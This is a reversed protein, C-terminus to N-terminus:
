HRRIRHYQKLRRGSLKMAHIIYVAVIDNKQSIDVIDILDVSTFEIEAAVKYAFVVEIVPGGPRQGMVIHKDSSIEKPFPPAANEVVFEADERMVGHRQAHERNFDDWLFIV